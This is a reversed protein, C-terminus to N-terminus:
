ESESEEEGRPGLYLRTELHWHRKTWHGEQQAEPSSLFDAAIQLKADLNDAYHLAMAEPLAPRIPAGWDLQGHHSLLVHTLLDGLRPPFDELQDIQRTVFRDTLVIHGFLRGADTYDYTLEGGLEWVKGVDHLLAGALLLDRDLEPHVQVAERCIAAVALTHQLLGGLCAHHLREAAPSILFRERFEGPGFIRALLAQLSANAVSAVLGDLEAIMEEVPRAAVRVFDASDYEEPRARRLGTLVLQKEGKYEEVRGEILVLTGREVGLAAAEAGDWMRAPIEGTRDALRLDLYQGPKNRFPALKIEAVVFPATVANGPALEAIMPKPM